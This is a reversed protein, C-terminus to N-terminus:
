KSGKMVFWLAAGTIALGLWGGLGGNIPWETRRGFKNETEWGPYEGHSADLPVRVKCGTWEDVPYAVLYVHSYNGPARGDAAVTCFESEVGYCALLAALYMTFDDCDGVGVVRQVLKAMERPRIICEIVEGEPYGGVGAATTEDRQFRIAHKVHGYAAEIVDADRGQGPDFGVVQRAWYCFGPDKSDERVREGMLALTKGVQGDADWGIDQVRYAVPGFVPHDVTGQNSLTVTPM